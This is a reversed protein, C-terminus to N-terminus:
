KRLQKFEKSFVSPSLNFEEDLDTKTSRCRKRKQQKKGNFIVENFDKLNFKLGILIGNTIVKDYELHKFYRATTRMDEKEAKRDFIVAM